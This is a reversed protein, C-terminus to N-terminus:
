MSGCARASISVGKIASAAAAIDIKTTVKMATANILPVSARKTRCLRSPASSRESPNKNPKTRPARSTEIAYMMIVQASGGSSWGAQNRSARAIGSTSNPAPKTTRAMGGSARASSDLAM